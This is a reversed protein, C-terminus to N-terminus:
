ERRRERVQPRHPGLESARPRGGPARDGPAAPVTLRHLERNGPQNAVARQADDPFAPDAHYITVHPRFWGAGVHGPVVEALRYFRVRKAPLGADALAGACEVDVEDETMPMHRM